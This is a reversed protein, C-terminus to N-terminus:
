SYYRYYSLLLLCVRSREPIESVIQQDIGKIKTFPPAGCQLEGQMKFLRAFHQRWDCMKLLTAPFNLGVDRAVTPVNIPITEIFELRSDLSM